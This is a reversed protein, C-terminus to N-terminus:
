YQYLYNIITDYTDKTCVITYSVYKAGAYDFVKTKDWDTLSVRLANLLSEVRATYDVGVLVTYFMKM